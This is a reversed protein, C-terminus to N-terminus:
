VCTYEFHPSLELYLIESEPHFNYCVIDKRGVRAKQGDPVETLCGGGPVWWRVQQYFLASALAQSPSLDRQKGMHQKSYYSM